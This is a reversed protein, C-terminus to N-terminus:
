IISVESGCPIQYIPYHSCIGSDDIQYEATESSYFYFYDVLPILICFIALVLLIRLTRNLLIVHIISPELFHASLSSILKKAISISKPFNIFVKKIKETKWGQLNEYDIIFNCESGADKHQFEFNRTAISNNEVVATSQSPTNESM